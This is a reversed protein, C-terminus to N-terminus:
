VSKKRKIKSVIIRRIRTFHFKIKDIKGALLVTHMGRKVRKCFKIDQKSLFKSSLIVDWYQIIDRRMENFINKYKKVVGHKELSEVVVKIATILLKIVNGAYSPENSTIYIFKGKTAYYICFIDESFSTPNTLSGIHKVYFYLNDPVVVIKNAKGFIKYTTFIDEFIEGVPYSIGAFLDKSYLKNVPYDGISDPPVLPAFRDHFGFIKENKINMTWSKITNLSEDLMEVGFCVIDASEKEVALLCKELLDERIFDDSDVFLIYKSSSKNICWDLGVNRTDSIGSNLKHIVNIRADREAYSDCIKGSNDTSGDDILIVDFNKFTQSLVSDICKKLYKEAMYVPIIISVLSM